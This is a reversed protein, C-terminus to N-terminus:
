HQWVRIYDLQLSQPFKTSSNPNGPWDGGIALTALLYQAKSTVHDTTSFREVGDVYWTIKGPEWDVGFTHWGAAFDPGTWDQGVDVGESSGDPWHYNLHDTTTSDGLIEFLDIEPPYSEDAALTWVGPWYGKGSPMYARTEIYGYTFKFKSPAGDTVPGSSIMGSTYHFTTAQGNVAVTMDQKKAQLSLVGNSVLDNQPTYLQQENQNHYCDNAGAHFNFFCTNWKTTDLTNGSFDDGFLLHWSGGQGVPSATGTPTASTGVSPTMTPTSSPTATPTDSPTVTPTDSPTATPTATGSGDNPIPPSFEDYHSTNIYYDSVLLVPNASQLVDWIDSGHISHGSLRVQRVVYLTTGNPVCARIDDFAAMNRENLCITAGVVQCKYASGVPSRECGGAGAAAAGVSPLNMFLLSVVILVLMLAAALAQLRRSHLFHSM